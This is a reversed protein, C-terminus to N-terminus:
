PQCVAEVKLPYGEDRAWQVAEAAKTQAIDKPYAGVVAYSGEHVSLMLRVAADQEKDFIEVLVDVVFDMPTFDDNYILVQYHRPLKIRSRTQEKISEKAAM